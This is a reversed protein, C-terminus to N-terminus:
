DAEVECPARHNHTIILHTRQTRRAQRSCLSYSAEREQSHYATINREDVKNRVKKDADVETSINQIKDADVQQFIKIKIQM